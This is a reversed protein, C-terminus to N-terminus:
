LEHKQIRTTQLKKIKSTHLVHRQQIELLDYKLYFIINIYSLILYYTSLSQITAKGVYDYQSTNM